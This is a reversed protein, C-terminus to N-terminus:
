LRYVIDKNAKIKNKAKDLSQPKRSMHLKYFMKKNNILIAYQKLIFFQTGQENKLFIRLFRGVKTEYAISVLM